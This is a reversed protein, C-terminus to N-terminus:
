RKDISRYLLLGSGGEEGGGLVGLKDRGAKQVGGCECTLHGRISGVKKWWWFVDGRLARCISDITTRSTSSLPPRGVECFLPYFSDCKRKLM